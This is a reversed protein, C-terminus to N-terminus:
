AAPLEGFDQDFYTVPDSVFGFDYSQGDEFGIFGAEAALVLASADAASGASDDAYGSAEDASNASATASAAAAAAEAAAVAGIDFWPGWTGDPDEWRISYGDESIEYAPKDGKFGRPGRAPLALDPGRVKTYAM